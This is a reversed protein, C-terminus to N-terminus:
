LVLGIKATWKITLKIKKCFEIDSEIWLIYKTIIKISCFPFMPFIYTPGIGTTSRCDVQDVDIWERTSGIWNRTSPMPKRTGQDIRSSQWQINSCGSRNRLKKNSRRAGTDKGSNRMPNSLVIVRGSRM